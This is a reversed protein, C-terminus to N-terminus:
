VVAENRDWWINCDYTLIYTHTLTHRCGFDWAAWKSMKNNHKELQVHSYEFHRRISFSLHIFRQFASVATSQLLLFLLLVGFDVVVAFTIVGVLYYIFLSFLLM